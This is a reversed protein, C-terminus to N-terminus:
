HKALFLLIEDAVMRNGLVSYHMDGQVYLKEYWDLNNKKFEKFHPFANIVGDCRIGACVGAIFEEWDVVSSEYALQAPWPYILLYLKANNVKALESIRQMQTRIKQLGGAVGHPLYGCKLNEFGCTELKEAATYTFASRAMNLVPKNDGNWVYDKKLTEHGFVKDRLFHHILSTAPFTNDLTDTLSNPPPPLEYIARPMDDVMDWKAAEDQVDSIDISVIVANPKIGNRYAKSLAYVYPTPSYSTVGANFVTAAALSEGVMGVFTDKWPGNIGFTYSDGVFLISNLRQKGPKFATKPAGVRFGHQDTYIDYHVNGWGAKGICNEALEYFGFPKKRYCDGQNTHIVKSLILADLTMFLVISFAISLAMLAVKSLSSM